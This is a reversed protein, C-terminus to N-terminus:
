KQSGGKDKRAKRGEEGSGSRLTRRRVRALLLILKASAGTGNAREANGLAVAAVSVARM